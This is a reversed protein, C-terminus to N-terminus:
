KKARPYNFSQVTNKADSGHQVNYIHGLRLTISNLICGGTTITPLPIPCIDLVEFACVALEDVSLSDRQTRLIRSYRHMFCCFAGGEFRAEVRKKPRGDIVDCAAGKTYGLESIM